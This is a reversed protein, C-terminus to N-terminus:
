RALDVEETGADSGTVPKRCRDASVSFEASEHEPHAHITSPEVPIEAVRRVVHSPVVLIEVVRRVVHSPVVLIAVVRRVVHSPVVLIM